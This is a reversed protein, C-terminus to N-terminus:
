LKLDCSSKSGSLHTVVLTVGSLNKTHTQLGPMVYRNDKGEKM